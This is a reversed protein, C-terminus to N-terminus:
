FAFGFQLNGAPFIGEFAETDEVDKGTNGWYYGVGLGVNFNLGSDWIWSWGAILQPGGVLGDAKSGGFKREQSLYLIRAGPELYFGDYVKKFYISTSLTAGGGVVKPDALFFYIFQPELNVKVNQHFAYSIGLNFNGWFYGFPNTWVNWTQYANRYRNREGVPIVPKNTPLTNYEEDGFRKEEASASTAITSVLTFAALFSLAIKKM